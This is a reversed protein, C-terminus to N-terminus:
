AHTKTTEGNHAAEPDYQDAMKTLLEDYSEGGRKLNRVRDRVAPSLKISTLGTQSM